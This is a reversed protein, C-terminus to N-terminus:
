TGRDCPRRIHDQKSLASCRSSPGPRCLPAGAPAAHSSSAPARWWGRAARLQRRLASRARPAASGVGVIRDAGGRRRAPRRRAVQDQLQRQHALLSQAHSAPNRGGHRHVRAPQEAQGHRGGAHLEGVRISRPEVQESAPAVRVGPVPCQAGRDFGAM